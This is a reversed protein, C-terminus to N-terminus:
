SAGALKLLGVELALSESINRALADRLRNVLADKGANNFDLKGSNPQGFTTTLAELITRRNQDLQREDKLETGLRHFCLSQHSRKVLLYHDQVGAIFQGYM